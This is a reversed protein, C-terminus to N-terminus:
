SNKRNKFVGLSHLGNDGGGADADEAEAVDAQGGGGDEGLPAVGYVADVDVGLHNGGNVLALDM